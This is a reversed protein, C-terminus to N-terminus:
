RYINKIEDTIQILQEEEVWPGSPLCIGSCFLSESVGNVYAPADSFVPQLHLPKWLLRSEIGLAVLRENLEFADMGNNKPRVNVTTLWYNSQQKKSPSIHVSIGDIDQLLETYRKAVHRHHALHLNLRSMQGCGIGASINSMRYNYGIQEHQYYPYPERAQTAYFWARKKDKESGCVLAGGGGTTIMKNGNFSFIGYNGFTGCPRGDYTSGQAEASDEVIPIEYRQAIGLLEEMMAPMGFLQVLIIAKPKRGTAQIRSKIAQELLEPSMNWSNPESDVFIPTAGQYVIPNASAAFTFSSCIVEDGQKVGLMILALHIAATGSSLCLVPHNNGLSHELLSELLDVNPGLPAVWRTKFAQQIYKMEEEGTRALCLQIQYKKM